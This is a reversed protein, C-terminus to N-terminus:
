TIEYLDLTAPESFPWQQHSMDAYQSVLWMLFLHNFSNGMHYVAVLKQATRCLVECFRHDM